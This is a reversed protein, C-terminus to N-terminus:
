ENIEITNLVRHKNGLCFLDIKQCGHSHNIGKHLIVYVTAHIYIKNQVDIKRIIFM